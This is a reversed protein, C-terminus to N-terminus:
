AREATGRFNNTILVVQIKIQRAVVQEQKLLLVATSPVAQEM